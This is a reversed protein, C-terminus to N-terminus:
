VQLIIDCLQGLVETLQDSPSPKLCPTQSLECVTLRSISVSGHAIELRKCTPHTCTVASLFEVQWKVLDQDRSNVKSVM